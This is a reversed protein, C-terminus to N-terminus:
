EDQMCCKKFKKGRGCPCPDNRGCKAKKLVMVPVNRMMGGPAAPGIGNFANGEQKHTGYSFKPTIKVNVM